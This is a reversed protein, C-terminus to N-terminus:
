SIKKIKKYYYKGYSDLVYLKIRAKKGNEIVALIEDKLILYTINEGCDLSKPFVSLDNGGKNYIDPNLIPIHKGNYFYGLGNLTVKRNCTNTVSFSLYESNNDQLLSFVSTKLSIKTLLKLEKSTVIIAILASLGGLFSGVSVLLDICLCINM